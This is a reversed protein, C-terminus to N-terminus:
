MPRRAVLTYMQADAGSQVFKATHTTYDFRTFGLVGLFAKLLAPTPSWWTGMNTSDTASARLLMVPHETLHGLNELTDTIILTETTRRAFQTIALLPDRLHLLIAGFFSIDVMEGEPLGDYVNGLCRRVKSDFLRHSLWFSRQLARMTNQRHGMADELTMGFRTPYDGFPILGVDDGRDEPDRDFAIVDAGLKEMEFAMFGSATGIDVIRKGAIPVHGLYQTVAGRLDWHGQQLGFGPLDVSHYFFCGDPSDVHIPDQFRSVSSM